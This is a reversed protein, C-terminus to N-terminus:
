WRGDFWESLMRTFEEGDWNDVHLRPLQLPDAGPGVSGPFNACATQFGAERVLEIAMQSFAFPQGYPYAFSKPEAGTIRELDRKSGAIEERQSAADLASLM